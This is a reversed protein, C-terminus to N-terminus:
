NALFRTHDCSSLGSVRTRFRLVSGLAWSSEEAGAAPGATMKSRIFAALM